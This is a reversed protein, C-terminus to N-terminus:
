IFLFLFLNLVFVFHFVRCHEEGEGEEGEGGADFFGVDGADANVVYGELPFVVFGDGGGEDFVVVVVVDADEAVANEDVEFFAVVDLEGEEV